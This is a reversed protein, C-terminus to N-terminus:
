DVKIDFVLAAGTDGAACGDFLAYGGGREVTEEILEIIGRAGTPGQPHGYILSCGYNNMAKHDIDMERCFYVDNVAFPTHTKIAVMDQVSVGARELAMRAAPIIAKAMYGKPARGEGSSVVRISVDDRTSYDRAKERTTVMIGTNGDAPFTQTGYSITGEPLVAKLGGLGERTTPFVGEDGTVTKLVKKGRADMINIDDVM